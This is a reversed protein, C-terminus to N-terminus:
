KFIQIIEDDLLHYKMEFIIDRDIIYHAKFEIKQYLFKVEIMDYQFIIGNM